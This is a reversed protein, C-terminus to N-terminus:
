GQDNVKRWIQLAYGSKGGMLMAPKTTDGVKEFATPLQCGKKVACSAGVLSPGHEILNFLADWSRKSFV